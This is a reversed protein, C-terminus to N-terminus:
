WGVLVEHLTNTLRLSGTEIAQLYIPLGALAPLNPVLFQVEAVNGSAPAPVMVFPQASAPDLGLTGFPPLPLRAPQLALWTAAGLPAGHVRLVYDFGLRPMRPATLQRHLNVFVKSRAAGSPERASNIAILDPDGDLDIDAVLLQQTNEWENAFEGTYQNWQGGGLNEIWLDQESANGIEYTSGFVLDLDGDLDFDAIAEVAHGKNQNAFFVHTGYSGSGNNLRVAPPNPLGFPSLGGVLQDLDGDGDLDGLEVRNHYQIPSAVFTGGQNRLLAGAIVDVDGDGDVDGAAANPADTPTTCWTTSADVFGGGAQGLWLADLAQVPFPAVEVGTSVFVDIQGDGDFDALELDTAKATTLSVQHPGSRPAFTGAGLNTFSWFRGDVALLVLDPLGDGSLDALAPRGTAPLALTTSAFTGDGRNRLLTGAGDALVLDPDGDGDLDGLAAFGLSSRAPLNARGEDRFTGTGDNWLLRPEIGRVTTSVSPPQLFESNGQLLDLDGDADLDALTLATTSHGRADFAAPDAVFAGAQQRLLLGGTRQGFVLDRDGDGDIDGTAISVVNAIPAGLAASDDVFTGGAQRRLLRANTGGLLLDHDGDGDVDAAICLSTLGPLPPLVTGAAPVLVGSQNRLLQQQPQYADVLFLDLDGDGDDDFPCAVQFFGGSPVRQATEDLFVLGGQNVWLRLPSPTLVDVRGDGTFDGVVATPDSLGLVFNIAVKTFVGTGDNTLCGLQDVIDRDGDGDLDAVAIVAYPANFTNFDVRSWAGRGSSRLFYRANTFGRESPVIDPRTDGDLDAVFIGGLEACEYPLPSREADAFRQASAPMALLLLSAALVTRQVTKPM